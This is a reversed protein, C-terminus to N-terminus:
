LEDDLVSRVKQLLEKKGVPKQIFVIDDEDEVEKTSLIDASYGSIFIAKMEPNGARVVDLLQKGNMKPMILDTILLSVPHESLLALGEKAGTATQVSYGAQELISKVYMRVMDDDEVLLISERGQRGDGNDQLPRRKRVRSGSLPLYISFTTGVGPFSEVAITGNHQSVIGYSIALGLGTGKGTEKTTFFPDFIKEVHEPSIGGGEDTVSIVAYEGPKELGLSKALPSDVTKSRAEITLLGGGPMADRANVVVNMLVQELQGPDGIITLRSTPVRHEIEIDEGILREIFPILDTVLQTLSVARFTMVQQRSFALLKQTLDKARNGADLIYSLALKLDPDELSEHVLEAYGNIVTLLNNFDHAVGGALLGISEMKQAQLIQQELSRRDTIDTISGAMRYPKGDVNHICAGRALIWRYSGDKHLLRHELQSVPSRRELCEILADLAKARDEPHIRKKWERINNQLEEDLYGLINKWRPSLYIEDSEFNWDWIGDNAGEVALSYREESKRLAEESRRRESLVSELRCITHALEETRKKIEEELREKVRKLEDRLRRSTTGDAAAKTGGGVPPPPATGKATIGSDATEGSHQLAAGEYPRISMLMVKRDHHTCSSIRVDAAMQSGNKCLLMSRLPQNEPASPSPKAAAHTGLDAISLHQLEEASYGLLSCATKNVAIFRRDSGKTQEYILLGDSANDFFLTKLEELAQM